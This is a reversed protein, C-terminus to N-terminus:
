KVLAAVAAHVDPQTEFPAAQGGTGILRTVKFAEETLPRLGCLIMRGNNEHLMRRLSLLPRFGVSTFMEVKSLDIAVKSAKHQQVANIFETRLGEAVADGRLQPETITIVLVGNDFKPSSYPM